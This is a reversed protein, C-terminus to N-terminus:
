SIVITLTIFLLGLQVAVAPRLSYDGKVIYLGLLADSTELVTELHFTLERDWIKM